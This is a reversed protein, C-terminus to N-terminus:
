PRGGVITVYSDSGSRDSRHYILRGIGKAIQRTGFQALAPATM